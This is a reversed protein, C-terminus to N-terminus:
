ACRVEAVSALFLRANAKTGDAPMAVECPSRPPNWQVRGAFRGFREDGATKRGRLSGYPKTLLAREATVERHTVFAGPLKSGAM